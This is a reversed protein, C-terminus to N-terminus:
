EMSEPLGTLAESSVVQPTFSDKTPQFGLSASCLLRARYLTQSNSFTKGLGKLKM